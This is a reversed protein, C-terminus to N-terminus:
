AIDFAAASSAGYEPRAHSRFVTCEGVKEEEVFSRHRPAHIKPRVILGRHDLLSFMHAMDGAVTMQKGHETLRIATQMSDTWEALGLRVARRMTALTVGGPGRRERGDINSLEDRSLFVAEGRSARWRRETLDMSPVPHEVPPPRLIITDLLDTDAAYVGFSRVGARSALDLLGDLASRDGDLWAVADDDSLCAARELLLEADSRAGAAVIAAAILIKTNISVQTALGDDYVFREDMAHLDALAGAIVSVVGGASRSWSSSAGRAFVLRDWPFDSPAPWVTLALYAVEAAIEQATATPSVYVRGALPAPRRVRQQDGWLDDMAPRIYPLTGDVVAIRRHDDEATIYVHLEIETTTTMTDDERASRTDWALRGRLGM